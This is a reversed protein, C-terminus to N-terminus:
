KSKQSYPVAGQSQLHVRKSRAIRQRQAIQRKVTTKKVIRKGFSLLLALILFKTKM